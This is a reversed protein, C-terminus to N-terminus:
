NGQEANRNIAAVHEIITQGITFSERRVVKIRDLAISRVTIEADNGKADVRRVRLRQADSEQISIVGKMIFNREDKMSNISALWKLVDTKYPYLKPHSSYSQQVFEIRRRLEKPYREDRGDYLYHSFIVSVWASLGWELTAWCIVLKGVEVAYIEFNEKTLPM